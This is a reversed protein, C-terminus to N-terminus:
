AKQRGAARRQLESGCSPFAAPWLGGCYALRTQLMISMLVCCSPRSPSRPIIVDPQGQGLLTRRTGGHSLWVIVGATQATVLQRIIFSHTSSIANRSDASMQVKHPPAACTSRLALQPLRAVWTATQKGSCCFPAKTRWRLYPPLRSSAERRLTDGEARELQAWIGVLLFDLLRVTPQGQPACLPSQAPGAWTKGDHYCVLLITDKREGSEVRVNRVGSPRLSPEPLDLLRVVEKDLAHAITRPQAGGGCVTGGSVQCPPATSHCREQGEAVGGGGSVARGRRGGRGAASGSASRRSRRRPLITRTRMLRVHAAEPATCGASAPNRASAAGGCGARRRLPLLARDVPRLHRRLLGPAPDAALQAPQFVPRRLPPPLRRLRLVPGGDAGVGVPDPLRLAGARATRPAGAMGWAM